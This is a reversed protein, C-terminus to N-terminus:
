QLTQGTVRPYTKSAPTNSQQNQDSGVSNKSNKAFKKRIAM